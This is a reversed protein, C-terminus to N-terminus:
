MVKQVLNFMLSRNATQREALSQTQIPKQVTEDGSESISSARTSETQESPGIPSVPYSGSRTADSEDTKMASNADFAIASDDDKAINNVTLTDPAEHPANSVQTTEGNPTNLNDSLSPSTSEVAASAIKQKKRMELAKMLRAKEPTISPTKATVPSILPNM